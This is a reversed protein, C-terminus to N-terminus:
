EGHLHGKLNMLRIPKYAMLEKSSVTWQDIGQPANILGSTGNCMGVNITAIHTDVFNQPKGEIYEVEVVIYISQPYTRYNVVDASMLINDGRAVYYGSRLEDMKDALIAKTKTASKSTGPVFSLTSDDEASGAFVSIPAGSNLSFPNSFRPMQWNKCVLPDIKRKSVDAFFLHHQYVGTGANARTGNQYAISTHNEIITINRPFESSATYIYATGSPDM